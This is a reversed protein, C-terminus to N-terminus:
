FIIDFHKPFLYLYLYTPNKIEKYLKKINIWNQLNKIKILNNNKSRNKYLFYNVYYKCMVGIMDNKNINKKVFEEIQKKIEKPIEKLIKIDEDKDVICFCKNNKINKINMNMNMNM